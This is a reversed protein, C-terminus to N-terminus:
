LELESLARRLMDRAVEVRQRQSRIADALLCLVPAPEGTCANQDTPCRNLVPSLRGTLEEVTLGLTDVASELLAMEADVERQRNAIQPMAADRESYGKDISAM